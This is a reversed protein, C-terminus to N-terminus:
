FDNLGSGRENIRSATYPIFVADLSWSPAEDRGPTWIRLHVLMVYLKLAPPGSVPYITQSGNLLWHYMIIWLHPIHFLSEDTRWFSTSLPGEGLTETWSPSTLWLNSPHIQNLLIHHLYRGKWIQLHGEVKKPLCQESGDGQSIRNLNVDTRSSKSKGFSAQKHICAAQPISRCTFQKLLLHIQTHVGVCVNWKCVSM